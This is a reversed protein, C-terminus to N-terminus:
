FTMSTGEKSVLRRAQISHNVMVYLNDDVTDAFIRTSPVCSTFTSNLAPASGFERSLHWSDLTSNRFQGAVSSEFRRYEDYRDQYGFVVNGVSADAEYGAIQQQGIHQLERQWYDEKTGVMGNITQGRWWARGMRQSYMTKPRVSMLTMVIGHEEFFRRYRNSRMATIGHGGFQGIGGLGGATGATTPATQLVESFQITNKGGGLYEPRQLRADSSHVGLYRLYEVYRSGYRARAEQWRQMAFAHRVVNIDVGTAGALNAFIQAYNSAGTPSAAGSTKAIVGTTGMTYSVTTGSTERVNAQAATATGDQFGLGTIPALGGVPVSVAPGKQEWPRASTLYDKEWNINQISVSTTSDTGDGLSLAVPTQLDQDRYFENFILAYARAPLANALVAGSLGSTPWGLHDMLGSVTVNSISLAPHATTDLGNAGGTIFNEWNTWIIRNPVFWHHFRVSVPHMVPTVLPACRILASTAQQITDGPLAEYWTVPVLQGMKCTLLKYHSLSFKSRKM